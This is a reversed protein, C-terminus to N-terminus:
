ILMPETVRIKQLLGVQFVTGTTVTDELIFATDPLNTIGVVPDQVDIIAVTLTEMQSDSTGDNVTVDLSYAPTHDFSFVPDGIYSIVGASFLHCIDYVKDCHIKLRVKATSIISNYTSPNIFERRNRAHNEM